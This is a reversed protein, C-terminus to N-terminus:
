AAHWAPITCADRRGMAAAPPKAPWAARFTRTLQSM